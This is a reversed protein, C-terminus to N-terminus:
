STTGSGSAPASINANPNVPRGKTGGPKFDHDYREPIDEDKELTDNKRAVGFRYALFLLLLVFGITVIKNM